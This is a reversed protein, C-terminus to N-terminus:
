FPALFRALIHQVLQNDQSTALHRPAPAPALGGLQAVAGGAVGRQGAVLVGLVLPLHQKKEWTQEKGQGSRDQM